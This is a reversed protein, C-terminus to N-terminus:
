GPPDVIKPPKVKRPKSMTFPTVSQIMGRPVFTRSRYSGDDDDICRENFISVGEPTDRVLWGLTQMLTPHHRPDPDGAGVTDTGDVWADLWEVVVLQPQTSM